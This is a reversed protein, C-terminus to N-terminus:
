YINSLYKHLFPFVNIKLDTAASFTMLNDSYKLHWERLLFNRGSLYINTTTQISVLFPFLLKESGDLSDPELGVLEAAEADKESIAYPKWQHKTM